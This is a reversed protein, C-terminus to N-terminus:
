NLKGARHRFYTFCEGEYDYECARYLYMTFNIDSFEIEARNFASRLLDSQEGITYIPNPTVTTLWNGDEDTIVAFLSGPM